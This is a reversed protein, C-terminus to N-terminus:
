GEGLNDVAMFRTVDDTEGHFSVTLLHRDLDGEPRARGRLACLLSNVFARSDLRAKRTPHGLRSRLRHSLRAILHSGGFYRIAQREARRLLPNPLYDYGGPPLAIDGGYNLKYYSRGHQEPTVSGSGDLVMRALAPDIGELLYPNPLNLHPL